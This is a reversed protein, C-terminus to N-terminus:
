ISKYIFDIKLEIEEAINKWVISPIEINYDKLKVIFKSKLIIKGNSSEALGHVNVDRTVGHMSLKGVAQVKQEGAASTNFGTLKGQFTAKPFKETEMYKENFHERMLSKPFKFDKIPVIFVLEGTSTNFLSGAAVNEATIDEVLGDSFFSIVGKESRYKQAFSTYAFFM